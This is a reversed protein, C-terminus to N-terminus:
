CAGAARGLRPERPELAARVAGGAGFGLPLAPMPGGDALAAVSEFSLAVGEPVPLGLAALRALKHRAPWLSSARVAEGAELAIVPDRPRPHDGTTENCHLM